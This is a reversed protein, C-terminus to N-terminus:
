RVQMVITHAWGDGLTQGEDSAYLLDLIAPILLPYLLFGLARTQAEKMTIPGLDERVTKLKLLMKGLTQGSSGEMVMVYLAFLIAPLFWSLIFGFPVFWWLVSLLSSVIGVLIADIIFAILRNVFAQKALQRGQELQPSMPSPTGFLNALVPLPTYHSASPQPAM